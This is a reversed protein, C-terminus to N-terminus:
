TIEWVDWFKFISRIHCYESQDFTVPFSYWYGFLKRPIRTSLFPNASNIRNKAAALTGAGAASGRESSSEDREV